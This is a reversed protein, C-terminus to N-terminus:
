QSPDGEFYEGQGAICKAWRHQWQQFCKQFELQPIAKLATTVKQTPPPIGETGQSRRGKLASKIIGFLWFDNPAFDPSCTTHEMETIPKQAVFQKVSLVKHAPANDHHLIWDPWLEPSKTSV